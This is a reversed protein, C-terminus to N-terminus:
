YPPSKSVLVEQPQSQPQDFMVEELCEYASGRFNTSFLCMALMCDDSIIMIECSSCIVM